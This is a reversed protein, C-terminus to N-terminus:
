SGKQLITSFWMAQFYIFLEKGQDGSTFGFRSVHLFSLWQTLWKFIELSFPVCESYPAIRERVKKSSLVTHHRSAVIMGLVHAIYSQCLTMAPFQHTSFYLIVTEELEIRPDCCRNERGTTWNDSKLSRAASRSKAMTSSKQEESTASRRRDAYWVKAEDNLSYAGWAERM